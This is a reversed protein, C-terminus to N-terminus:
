VISPRQIQRNQRSKIGSPHAAPLRCKEFASLSAAKNQKANMFFALFTLFRDPILMANKDSIM